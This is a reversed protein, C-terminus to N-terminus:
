GLNFRIGWLGDLLLFMVVHFVEDGKGHEKRCDDGGVCLVVVGVVAAVVVEVIRRREDDLFVLNHVAPVYAVEVAAADGVVVGLDARVALSGCGYAVM